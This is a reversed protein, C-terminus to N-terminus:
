EGSRARRENRKRLLYEWEKQLSEEEPTKNAKLMLTNELTDGFKEEFWKIENELEEDYANTLKKRKENEKEWMKVIEKVQITKGSNSKWLTNESIRIHKNRKTKSVGVFRGEEIWKHISTISVGFFKALEGTTYTIQSSTETAYDIMINIMEKINKQMMEKINSQILNYIKTDDMISVIDTTKLMFNSIIKYFVPGAENNIISEALKDSYKLAQEKEYQTIMIVGGKM